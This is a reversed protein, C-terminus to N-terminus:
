LGLEFTCLRCDMEVTNELLMDNEERLLQVEQDVTPIPNVLTESGDEGVSYFMGERYKDGAKVHYQTVDVAIGDSGYLATALRNAETYNEVVMINVVEDKNILAYNQYIIM